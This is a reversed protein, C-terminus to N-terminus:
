MTSTLGRFAALADDRLRRMKNLICFLFHFAMAITSVAEHGDRIGTAM